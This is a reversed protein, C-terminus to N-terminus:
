FCVMEYCRVLMRTILVRIFTEKGVLVDSTSPHQASVTYMIDVDAHSDSIQSKLLFHNSFSPYGVDFFYFFLVCFCVESLSYICCDTVEKAYCLITHPFKSWLQSTRALLMKMLRASDNGCQFCEVWALRLVGEGEHLFTEQWLKPHLLVDLFAEIVEKSVKKWGTGKSNAKAKANSQIGIIVGWAARLIKGLLATGESSIGSSQFPLCTPKEPTPNLAVNSTLFSFCLLTEEAHGEDASDSDTLCIDLLEQLPHLAPLNHM